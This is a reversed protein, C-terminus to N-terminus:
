FPIAEQTNEVSAKKTHPFDKNEEEPDVEEEKSPLHL